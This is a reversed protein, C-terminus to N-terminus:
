VGEPCVFKTLQESVLYVSSALQPPTSTVLHVNDCLQTHSICILTSMVCFTYDFTNVGASYFKHIYGTHIQQINRLNSWEKEDHKVYLM